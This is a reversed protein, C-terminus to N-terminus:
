PCATVDAGESWAEEDDHLGAKGFLAGTQAAQVWFAVVVPHQRGVSM